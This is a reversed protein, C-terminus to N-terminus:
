LQMAVGQCGSLRGFIQMAVHMTGSLIGQCGSLHGLFQM